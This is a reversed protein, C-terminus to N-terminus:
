FLGLLIVRLNVTNNRNSENKKDTKFGHLPQSYPTGTDKETTVAIKKKNKIKPDKETQIKGRFNSFFILVNHCSGHFDLSVSQIEDGKKAQSHCKEKFM